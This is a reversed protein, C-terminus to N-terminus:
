VTAITTNSIAAGIRRIIPMARVLEALTDRRLLKSITAVEKISYLTIYEILRSSPYRLACNGTNDISSIEIYEMIQWLNLYQKLHM